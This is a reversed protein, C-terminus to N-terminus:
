NGRSNGHGSTRREDTDLTSGFTLPFRSAIRSERTAQGAFSGTRRALVEVCGLAFLDAAEINDLELLLNALQFRLQRLIGLLVVFIWSAILLDDPGSAKYAEILRILCWAVQSRAAADGHCSENHLFCLSICLGFPYGLQDGFNARPPSLPHVAHLAYHVEPVAQTARTRALLAIGHDAGM